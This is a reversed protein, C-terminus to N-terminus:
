MFHNGCTDISATCHFNSWGEFPDKTVHSKRHIHLFTSNGRPCCEFIVVVAQV